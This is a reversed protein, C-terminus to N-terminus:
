RGATPPARASDDDSVKLLRKVTHPQAGDYLSLLGLQEPIPVALFASMPPVALRHTRYHDLALREM